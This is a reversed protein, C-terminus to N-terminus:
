ESSDMLDIVRIEVGHYACCRVHVDDVTFDVILNPAADYHFLDDLADPDINEYLTFDSETLDTEKCDAIVQLVADSVSRDQSPRFTDSVGLTSGERPGDRPPM